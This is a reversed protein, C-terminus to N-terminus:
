VRDDNDPRKDQMIRRMDELLREDFTRAPRAAAAISLVVVVFLPVGFVVLLDLTAQDIM